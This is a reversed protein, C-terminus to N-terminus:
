CSNIARQRQMSFRVGITRTAFVPIEAANVLSPTAISPAFIGARVSPPNATVTCSSRRSVNNPRHPSTSEGDIANRANMKTACPKRIRDHADPMAFAAGKNIIAKDIQTENMPQAVFEFEVEADSPVEEPVEEPIEQLERGPCFSELVGCTSVDM